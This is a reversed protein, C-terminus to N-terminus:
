SSAGNAPANSIQPPDDSATEPGYACQECLPTIWEDLGAVEFIRRYPFVTAPREDCLFCVDSM